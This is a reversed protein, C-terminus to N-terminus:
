RAEQAPRAVVQPGGQVYATLEQGKEISVNKGRMFGGFGFLMRVAVDGASRGQGGLDREGRLGIKSGDVAEVWEVSVELKGQKGMSQRPLIETVTGQARAGAAIVLNGVVRVDEMAELAFTDGSRLTAKEPKRHAMATSLTQMLRLRVPTGDPIEISQPPTHSLPPALEPAQMLPLLSFVVPSLGIVPHM